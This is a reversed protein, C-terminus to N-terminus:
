EPCIRYYHDYPCNRGIEYYECARGRVFNGYHPWQNNTQSSYVIIGDGITPREIFLDNVPESGYLFKEGVVPPVVELVTESVTRWELPTVYDPTAPGGDRDCNYLTAVARGEEPIELILFRGAPEGDKRMTFTGFAWSADVPNVTEATNASGNSTEAATGSGVSPGCALLLALSLWARRTTCHPKMVNMVM